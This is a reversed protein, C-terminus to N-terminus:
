RERSVPPGQLLLREFAELFAAPCDMTVNHGCGSIVTLRSAPLLRELVRGSELPFVIDRDGWILDVPTRIERISADPLDRGDETAHSAALRPLAGHRFRRSIDDLVFGPLRGNKQFLSAIERREITRGNSTIWSGRAHRFPAGSISFARGAKEPHRAAYAIALWGGLSVGCLAVRKQGSYDVVTDVARIMGEFTLPGSRPASRGHGPLDPILVRHSQALRPAINDFLSSENNAGHLLILTPGHGGEWLALRGGPTRLFVRSFGHRRMRGRAMWTWITVPRKWAFIGGSAAAAVLVFWFIGM